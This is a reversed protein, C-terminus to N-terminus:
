VAEIKYEKSNCAAVISEAQEREFIGPLMRTHKIRREDCVTRVVRFKDAFGCEM